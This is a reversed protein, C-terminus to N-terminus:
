GTRALYNSLALLLGSIAPVAVTLVLFLLQRRFSAADKAEAERESEMDGVRKSLSDHKADYVDKRLYDRVATERDTRMDKGLSAMERSTAELMRLVEGLTPETM